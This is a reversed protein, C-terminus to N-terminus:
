DIAVLIPEDDDDDHEDEDEDEENNTDKSDDNSTHEELTKPSSKTARLKKDTLTVYIILPFDNLNTLNSNVFRTLWSADIIGNPKQERLLLQKIIYLDASKKGLTGIVSGFLFREIANGAEASLAHTAPTNFCEHKKNLQRRTSMMLRGSRFICAHAIEHLTKAFIFFIQKAITSSTTKNSAELSIIGNIITKDYQIIDDKGTLESSYDGIFHSYNDPLNVVNFQLDQVLECLFSKIRHSYQLSQQKDFINVFRLEPIIVHSYYVNLNPNIILDEVLHIAKIFSSSQLLLPDIRKSNFYKFQFEISTTTDTTLTITTTTSSPKYEESSSRKRKAM